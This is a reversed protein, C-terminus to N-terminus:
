GLRRFSRRSLISFPNAKALRSPTLSARSAIKIMSSLVVNRLLLDNIAPTRLRKPCVIRQLFSVPRPLTKFVEEINTFFYEENIKGVDISFERAHILTECAKRPNLPIGFERAFGNASGKPIIGLPVQTFVLARAIENITGDGGIAVVCQVGRRLAEEALVRGHGPRETKWFIYDMKNERCFRDILEVFFSPDKKKGAVPNLIFAYSMNWNGTM